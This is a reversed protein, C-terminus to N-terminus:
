IELAVLGPLKKGGLFELMAGGGTSVHNFADDLSLKKIIIVTDGGGVVKYARCKAVAKAVSETGHAFADIEFLGMPGNWVVTGAKKIIDSFRDITKPGIDLIMEGSQVKAVDRFVIKKRGHPNPSAVVDSPLIIKGSRLISLAAPIFEKEIKSAATKLGRAAHFTNAIAGGVLVKSANKLLNKIVPLKTEIKAGGIVLVFPPNPKKVVGSLVSTEEELLPGAFSPLFKTIADISAHARHCVGFADNVYIEGLRALKKAFAPDNKKEGENFRLNELMAFCGNGIGLVDEEIEDGVAGELLPVDRKIFKSLYKAIPKLSLQEEKGGPRGLHSMIITKAGQQMLWELTPLVAKIRFDDAITKGDEAFSINFDVRLLIRKGTVNVNKISKM